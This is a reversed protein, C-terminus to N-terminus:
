RLLVPMEHREFRDYGNFLDESLATDSVATVQYRRNNELDRVALPVGDINVSLFELQDALDGLMGTASSAMGRSFEVIAELTAFDQPSLKGGAATAMCVEAAPRGQKLIGSAECRLGAITHSGRDVTRIAAEKGHGAAPPGLATGMRQEIMKRQAPSMGALMRSMYPQVAQQVGTVAQLNAELTEETVQTYRREQPQVYTVTRSAADYVLYQDMGSASLRGKGNRLQILSQMGDSGQVVLTADAQVPLAQLMFVATILIGGVSRWVM